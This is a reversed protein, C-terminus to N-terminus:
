RKTENGSASTIATKITGVAVGDGDGDGVDEGDVLEGDDEGDDLPLVRREIMMETVVMPPVSRMATTIALQTGSKM